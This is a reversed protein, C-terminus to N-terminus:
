VKKVVKAFTFNLNELLSDGYELVRVYTVSKENKKSQKEKIPHSKKVDLFITWKNNLFKKIIDFYTLTKLM